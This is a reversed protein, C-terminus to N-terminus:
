LLLFLLCLSILVLNNESSGTPKRLGVGQNSFMGPQFRSGQGAWLWGGTTWLGSKPPASGPSPGKQLRVLQRQAQAEARARVM